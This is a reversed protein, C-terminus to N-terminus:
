VRIKRGRGDRMDQLAEDSLMDWMDFEQKLDLSKQAAELYLMLSRKVIEQEDIGFAKSVDRMQKNLKKEIQVQMFLIKVASLRTGRTRQSLTAPISPFHM